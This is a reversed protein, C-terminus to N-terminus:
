IVSKYNSKNESRYVAEYIEFLDPDPLNKLDDEVIEISYGKEQYHRYCSRLAVERLSLHQEVALEKLKIMFDKNM